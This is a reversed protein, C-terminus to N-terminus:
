EQVEEFENPKVGLWEGNESLGSIAGLRNKKAEYINGERLITGPIGLFLDPRVTKLMKIKVRDWDVCYDGESVEITHKDCYSENYYKCNMCYKSM